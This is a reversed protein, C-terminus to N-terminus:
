KKRRLLVLCGGLGLLVLTAPEPVTVTVSSNSGTGYDISWGNPIDVTFGTEKILEGDYDIITYTGEPTNGLDTIKLIGGLRVDDRVHIEQIPDDDGDFQFELTSPTATSSDVFFDTVEIEEPGSGVVIFEGVFNDDPTSNEGSPNGVWVDDWVYLSGGSITYRGHAADKSGKHGLSLKSIRHDSWDAVTGGHQTIEAWNDENDYGVIIKAGGCPHLQGSYIDITSNDYLYLEDGCTANAYIEVFDGEYLLVDDWSADSGPPGDDGETGPDSGGAKVYYWNEGTNWKHDAGEDDWTWDAMAPAVSLALMAVVALLVVAKKM